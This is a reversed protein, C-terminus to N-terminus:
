QEDSADSVILSVPSRATSARCELEPADFPVFEQSKKKSSDRHRNRSVIEELWIGIMGGIGIGSFFMGWVFWWNNPVNM